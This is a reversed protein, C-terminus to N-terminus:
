LDPKEATAESSFDRKETKFCVGIIIAASVCAMALLAAYSVLYTGFAEALFGPLLTFAFGGLAYCIQFDRITRNERGKPALETSCTTIGVTGLSFGIGYLFVGAGALRPLRLHM